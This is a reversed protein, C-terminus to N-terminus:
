GFLTQQAPVAVTSGAGAALPVVLEPGNNRVSNVLPSVPHILLADDPAPRLLSMLEGSDTVDPDLWTRWDDGSLIVPMRDHIPAVQDSAATTVVACSPVWNGTAPDKWVSWIGAFPLLRREGDAPSRLLFPARGGDRRLWEYFGDVPVICRRRRFAVRFAPSRLISEARANIMRAGQGPSDAWAPILGWRLREVARGDDRQLVVTVPDTPAVNWSPEFGADDRLEADFIRAVESPRTQQTM